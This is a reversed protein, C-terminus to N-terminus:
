VRRMWFSGPERWMEQGLVPFKVAVNEPYNHKLYNLASLIKFSANHCLFAELLYQENWFRLDDCVWSAPYDRPTFIDHVHVLVGPKLLPLIQLYECVVDGGPRIVHSSDIFLIDNEELELFLSKDVTEVRQRRVTAGCQELWPEEYPEICIHACPHGNDDKENRNLAQRAVLTSFGSGIEILRRPQFRRIISYLLEADGPGFRSNHYHFTLPNDSKLPLALLEAAFDLESLMALQEGLNLDIGPLNREKALIARLPETDFLPEYYHRRIPFVGVSLLARKCAPLRAVGIRRVIWLILSAPFAFLFFITDFAWFCFSKM